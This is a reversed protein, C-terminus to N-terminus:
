PEPIPRTVRKLEKLFNNWEEIAAEAAEKHRRITEQQRRITEKQEEVFQRLCNMYTKVDKIYHNKQQQSLFELPRVPRLCNHSPPSTYVVEARAPLPAMLLFSVIFVFQRILGWKIINSLREKM